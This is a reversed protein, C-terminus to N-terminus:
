NILKYKNKRRRMQKNKIKLELYTTMNLVHVAKSSGFYLIGRMASVVIKTCYIMYIGSDQIFL